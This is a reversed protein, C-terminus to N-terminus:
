GDKTRRYRAPPVGYHDRFVRTLHAQDVFGLDGALDAISEDTTRLRIEVIAARRARAHAGIPRGYWSRFSRAVHSRHRGIRRALRALSPAGITADLEDKLESLWSPPDAHPVSATARAVLELAASEAEFRSTPAALRAWSNGAPPADLFVSRTPHRPLGIALAGPIELIQGRAGPGSVELEHHTSGPSIRVVGAGCERWVAGVREAFGGERLLCAHLPLHGHGKLTSRGPLSFSELLM